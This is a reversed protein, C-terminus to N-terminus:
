KSFKSNQNSKLLVIQTSGSPNGFPLPIIISILWRPSSILQRPSLKINRTQDLSEDGKRVFETMLLNGIAINGHERYAMDSAPILAVNCAAAAAMVCDQFEKDVRPILTRSGPAKLCRVAKQNILFNLPKSNQTPSMNYNFNTLTSCTKPNAKSPPHCTTVKQKWGTGGSHSLCTTNDLQQGIPTGSLKPLLVTKTCRHIEHHNSLEEAVKKRAFANHCWRPSVFINLFRPWFLM